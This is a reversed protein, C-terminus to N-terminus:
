QWFNSSSIITSLESILYEAYGFASTSALNDSFSDAIIRGILSTKAGTGAEGLLIIKYTYMKKIEEKDM